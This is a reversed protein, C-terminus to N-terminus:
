ESSQVAEQDVATTDGRSELHQDAAVADLTLEVSHGGLQSERHRRSSAAPAGPSGTMLNAQRADLSIM